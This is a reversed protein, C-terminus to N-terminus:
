LCIKSRVTLDATRFTSAAVPDLMIKLTIGFQTLQSKENKATNQAANDFPCTQPSKVTSNSYVKSPTSSEPSFSTNKTFKPFTTPKPESFILPNESNVNPIQVNQCHAYPIQVNQIQFNQMGPNQFNPQIMFHLQEPLQSESIQSSSTHVTNQVPMQSNHYGTQM